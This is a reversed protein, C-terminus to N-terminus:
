EFKEGYYCIRNRGKHKANYLAEDAKSIFDSISGGQGQERMNVGISVTIKSAAEDTCSVDMNEASSRIHEAIELAGFLDTNPLLVIFEEGGWRAAFDGPRRLVDTFVKTMSQLAVDGQQHGFRDNYSKFNDLDIMLLSIHTRERSSRGWESSIREEFNRRNPLDTLQDMMSLKEITRLQDVLKIQNRIRLTVIGPTFPKTIYDAAGLALGKAENDDGTLSTIFIVPINKTTESRKLLDIVDYGDMDTMLVDLLIVDPLHKEAAEIGDKGNLESYIRYEPKLIKVLSSIIAEQDDIILVSHM